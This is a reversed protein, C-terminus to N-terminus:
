GGSSGRSPVDRAVLIRGDPALSYGRTWWDGAVTFNRSGFLLQATGPVGQADMAAEMLQVRPGLAYLTTATTRGYRIKDWVTPVPGPESPYRQVLVHVGHRWL